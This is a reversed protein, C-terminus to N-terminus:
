ETSFKGERIERNSKTLMAMIIGSVFPLASFEQMVAIWSFREIDELGKYQLVSDRRKIHDRIEQRIFTFLTM